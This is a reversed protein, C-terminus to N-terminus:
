NPEETESEEADVPAAERLSELSPLAHKRGWGAREMESQGSLSYRTWPIAQLREAEIPEGTLECCGYTGREIRRLAEVLEVLTAQTASAELLSLCRQSEESAAEGLDDLKTRSTEAV